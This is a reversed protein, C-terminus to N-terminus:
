HHKSVWDATFAEEADFLQRIHHLILDELAGGIFPVWVKCVSALRLQSGTDSETLFYEGGFRGPGHPVSAGYTGKAANTTHDYPDFHQERTIIIDGPMVARAVAPLYM